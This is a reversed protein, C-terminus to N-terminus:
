SQALVKRDKKGSATYPMSEIVNFKFPCFISPLNRECFGEIIELIEEEPKDRSTLVLYAIIEQIESSFVVAVEKIESCNALQFEIEDLEVRHGKIKIQRDTRGHLNVQDETNISALDGTPYWGGEILPSLMKQNPKHLYGSLLAPGTVLLEGILTNKNNDFLPDRIKIEVNEGKLSFKNTQDNLNKEIRHALAYPIETAGYLNWVDIDDQFFSYLKKLFDLSIPEGSLLIKKLYLNPQSAIHNTLLFDLTSPTTFLSTVKNENITQFFRDPLATTEPPILCLTAGTNLTGFIDFVSLDFCLAAQNAIVDQNKLGIHKQFMELASNAARHSICVGKPQGTSGSTFLTYALHEDSYSFPLTPFDSINIRQADKFMEDSIDGSLDFIYKPFRRMKKIEHYLRPNIGTFIAVSPRLLSFIYDLRAAPQNIDLAVYTAGSFLTGLIAVISELSKKGLIFVFKNELNIEHLTAAVQCSREYLEQYTFAKTDDLVAIKSPNEVACRLFGNFILKNKEM